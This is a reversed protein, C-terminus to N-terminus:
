KGEKHKRRIWDWKQRAWDLTRRAWHYYESLMVLGVFVLVFGPGPIGPISLILGGAILLFGGAIRLWKRARSSATQNM